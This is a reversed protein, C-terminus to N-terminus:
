FYNEDDDDDDEEEEGEEKDEDGDSDEDSDSKPKSKVKIGKQYFQKLEYKSVEGEKSFLQKFLAFKEQIKKGESDSLTAKGKEVPNKEIIKDFFCRTETMQDINAEYQESSAALEIIRLQLQIALEYATVSFKIREVEFTNNDGTKADDMIAKRRAVFENVRTADDNVMESESMATKVEPCKPGCAFQLAACLTLVILGSQQRM